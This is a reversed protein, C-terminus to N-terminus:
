GVAQALPTLYSLILATTISIVLSVLCASPLAIFCIKQRYQVFGCLPHRIHSIYFVHLATNLIRSQMTVVQNDSVSHYNPFSAAACRAYTNM